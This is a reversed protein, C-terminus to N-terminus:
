KTESLRRLFRRLSSALEIPDALAEVTIRDVYAVGADRLLHDRTTDLARRHNHHPGDIELVGARGKYTVLFDPEWTRSPIRGGALPYIGITEESPLDKEQLQKLARYVTREGENTFALYDEIFASHSRIKRAHNTPRKGNPPASELIKRWGFPVQPLVERCGLWQLPLRRRTVVEDFVSRLTNMVAEFREKDEHDYELWLDNTGSEYDYEICVNVVSGLVNAVDSQGRRILVAVITGLTADIVKDPKQAEASAEEAKKAETGWPDDAGWPDDNVNGFTGRGFGGGTM